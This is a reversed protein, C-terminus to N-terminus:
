HDDDVEDGGGGHGSSDDDSDDGGHGSDDGDDDSHTGASTPGTSPGDDEPHDRGSTAGPATTRTAPTSATTGGRNQHVGGDDGPEISTHTAASPSPTPVESPDAGPADDPGDRGSDDREGSLRDDASPLDFPTVTEVAGAVGDQIPGPLVGAAGAGTVGAVAIGLGATAQALSSASAIKAALAAFAEFM